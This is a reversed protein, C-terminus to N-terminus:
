INDDPISRTLLALVEQALEKHQEFDSQAAIWTKVEQLFEGRAALNRFRPDAACHLMDQTDPRKFADAIYQLKEPFPRELRFIVGLADKLQRLYIARLYDQNIKSIPGFSLLYNRIIGIWDTLQEDISEFRTKVLSDLYQNYIHLPQALIGARRANALIGLTAEFDIISPARLVGSEVKAYYEKLLDTKYVKGWFEMYYRRYALFQATFGEGEIILDKELVREDILKGSVSDTLRTGCAACDLRNALLFAIMTELFSPAYADDADLTVFYAAEPCTQLMEKWFPLYVSLDNTEVRHPVIRSDRRAYAAIISGTTDTSGNDLLHCEFDGDTQRLLSEVAGALTKEANYAQVYVLTRM